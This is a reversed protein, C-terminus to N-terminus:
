RRRMLLWAIGAGVMLALVGFAVPLSTAALGFGAAVGGVGPIALKAWWPLRRNFHTDLPYGLVSLTLSAIAFVVARTTHWDTGVAVAIWIVAPLLWLLDTAAFV